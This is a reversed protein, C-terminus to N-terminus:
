RPGHGSAGDCRELPTQRGSVCGGSSGDGRVGRRSRMVVKDNEVANEALVVAALDLEVLGVLQGGLVDALHLGVELSADEPVETAVAEEVLDVGRAYEGPLAVNPGLRQLYV